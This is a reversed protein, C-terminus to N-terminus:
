ALGRTGWPDDGNLLCHSESCHCMDQWEQRSHCMDQWEQGNFRANQMGSPSLAFTM